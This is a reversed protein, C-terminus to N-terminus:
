GSMWKLSLTGWKKKEVLQNTVNNQSAYPQLHLQCIRFLILITPLKCCITSFSLCLLLLLSDIAPSITVLTLRGMIELNQNRLNGSIDNMPNWRFVQLILHWTYPSLYDFHQYFFLCSFANIGETFKQAVKCISILVNQIRSHCTIFGQYKM